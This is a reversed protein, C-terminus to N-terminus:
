VVTTEHGEELPSAHKLRRSLVRSMTVGMASTLSITPWKTLMTLPMHSGMVGMKSMRVNGNISRFRALPTCLM